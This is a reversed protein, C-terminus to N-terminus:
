NSNANCFSYRLLVTTDSRIKKTFIANRNLKFNYVTKENTSM